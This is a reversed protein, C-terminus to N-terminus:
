STPSPAALERAVVKLKQLDLKGSGLLPFEKVEYFSARDPIWLKPLDSEQLRRYLDDLAEYDKVLVVLREGRKEDPVATVIFTQEIRGALEHLKAEIKIHPVMEGAIKSFRSLRDTITLFGDADLAAIDGTVYYGDQVAEASKAPDALYGAMVNLGKILLLGPEGEGKPARSDPDVVAALVGPLPQGVSGLKTGRQRVGPWTIDPINVATVPSLETCGYGELPAIGFREEFAKSIDERLKEAGVVVLRLTAFSEPEVRRLYTTLFTPTGLLFTARFGKALKAITRADLPNFHYVAAIGSLLPFWLTVTYGFSHFFPLVGLIRDDKRVQYVQAMGYVNSLINAHTFMVGKPIGTSGSTFIVTALRDISGRAKPALLLEVLPAPLVLLALGALLATIKPIGGAIDEIYVAREGIDWGLKEMLKKSVVIKGIGARDACALVIDRSATYNLNVAVRGHLALGINALAGAASPPLLLGATKEGPEGSSGAPLAADLARGLAWAKAFASLCNMRADSSDALALRFPHRKAARLFAIPLPSLGKLRRGFAEPGLELIAQRIEHANASSPMPRGFSVTVPYPIRRPWKFLVKGGEFSFISGWVRDLHVPIIPVDLGSAIREFGKKFRLMQGHRTIEGEAFICVLEGAKLQERAADLSRLMARPGDADSIPIVGMAKFFWRAIPVEYYRRYM